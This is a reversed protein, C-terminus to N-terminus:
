RNHPVSGVPESGSSPEPPGSRYMREGTLGGPRPKPDTPMRARNRSFANGWRGPRNFHLPTPSPSRGIKMRQPTPVHDNTHRLFNSLALSSHGQNGIRHLLEHAEPGLDHHFRTGPGGRSEFVVGVRRRAGPDNLVGAFRQPRIEDQFHLHRPFGGATVLRIAKGLAGRQDAKELGQILGLDGLAQHIPFDGGKRHLQHRPNGPRLGHIRQGALAGNGTVLRHQHPGVDQRTNKGHQHGRGPRELGSPNQYHTHADGPKLGQAGGLSQARDRVAVVGPGHHALLHLTETRSEHFEVEIRAIGFIGAPVCLGLGFFEVLALPRFEALVHGGGVQDNCGGQNGALLRGQQDFRIGYPVHPRTRYDDIQSCLFAPVAFEAPRILVDHIGAHGDNPM